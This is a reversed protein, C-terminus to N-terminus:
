CQGYHYGCTLSEIAQCIPPFKSDVTILQLKDAVLHFGIVREGRQNYSCWVNWGGWKELSLLSFPVLLSKARWSYSLLLRLETWSLVRLSREPHEPSQSWQKEFFYWRRYPAAWKFPVLVVLESSISLLSEPWYFSRAREWAPQLLHTGNEAQETYYISSASILWQLM